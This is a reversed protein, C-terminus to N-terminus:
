GRGQALRYQRPSLGETRLFAECFRVHNKFGCHVAVTGIPLDSQVLIKQAHAIRYQLLRQRYPVGIHQRFVQSGYDTSIRFHRCLKKLTLSPRHFNDRTYADLRCAVLNPIAQRKGAHAQVAEILRVAEVPKSFFDVAGKKIARVVADVRPANAMLIVRTAIGRRTLATLARDPGIGLHDLDLIALDYTNGDLRRLVYEDAWHLTYVAPLADEFRRQLDAEKTSILLKAM